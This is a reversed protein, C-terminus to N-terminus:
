QHWKKVGGKYLIYKMGLADSLYQEFTPGIEKKRSKIVQLIPKRNNTMPLIPIIRITLIM